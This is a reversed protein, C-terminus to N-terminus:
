IELIWKQKGGINKYTLHNIKIAKKINEITKVEFFYGKTVINVYGLLSALIAGIFNVILYRIIDLVGSEQVNLKFMLDM